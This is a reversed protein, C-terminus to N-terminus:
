EPKVILDIWVPLHDSYGGNYKFGNYTRFPKLGGMQFDRELLFPLDVIRFSGSKLSINLDQNLLSRSVIIQDFIEWSHQYKLTGISTLLNLAPSILQKDSNIDGIELDKLFINSNPAENFDGLIVLLRDPNNNLLSDCIEKVLNAACQRKWQTFSSGGYRSPWHNVLVHLTDCADLIGKVYLIDRTPQHVPGLDVEVPQSDLVVFRNNRYLLAVEIGRVDPSDYHVFRYDLNYLGTHHLMSNLVWANEVECLGVLVPLNWGGANLIVRAIKNFKDQMRSYTWHKSGAPTFEDDSKNPDSVVDFLNEVNYFMIGALQEQQQSYTLVSFLLFCPLLHIKKTLATLPM